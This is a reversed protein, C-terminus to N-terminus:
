EAENNERIATEIEEPHATFYAWAASLDNQTLTPYDQLLQEDSRGLRRAEVLMWVAIRTGRICASGGIVGPTKRITPENATMDYERQTSRM